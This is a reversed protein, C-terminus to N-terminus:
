AGMRRLLHDHSLLWRYTAPARVRADEDAFLEERLRLLDRPTDVDYWQPLSLLRLGLRSANRATQRYALSTSWAVDRFLDPHEAAVGVLYYGGDATPGLTVGAEGNTLAERATEIFSAPMTPSDTGIIIVPGFGSGRAHRVVCRLREGLDAGQQEVWLLGPPLLPELIARGGYPTYAVLVDGAACLATAAADQAFSAALSAADEASLPPALRTKVFGPLPAKVMVIVVPRSM